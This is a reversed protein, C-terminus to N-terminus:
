RERYRRARTATNQQLNPMDFWSPGPAVTFGCSSPQECLMLWRTNPRGALAKAFLILLPSLM